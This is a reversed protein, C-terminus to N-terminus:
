QWPRDETAAEFRQQEGIFTMTCKGTAGDTVV